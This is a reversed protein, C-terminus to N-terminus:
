RVVARTYLHWTAYGLVPFVVALGVFAPLAGLICLVVVTLGWVASTFPNKRAVRISTRMAIGADVRKDVVMPFSVISIALAAVVFALGVLNGVIIMTWGQPTSFVTQLFHQVSAFGEPALTGVTIGYILWAALVWLLFLFVTMSTLGALAPGAPGRVADLFHRWRSDLGLERRRALEYYGSAIAPGFVVSGAVFPFVFPLVSAHQVIMISLFVVIPYILGVFILDGRKALFDQWGQALVIRLDHMDIARVPFEREEVIGNIENVQAM